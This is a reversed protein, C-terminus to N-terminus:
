RLDLGELIIQRGQKPLGESAHLSFEAGTSAGKARFTFRSKIARGPVLDVGNGAMRYGSIEATDQGEQDWREGNEDILYWENATFRVTTAEVSEVTVLVSAVSGSKRVTDAILRYYSDTAFTTSKGSAVRPNSTQIKTGEAGVLLSPLPM